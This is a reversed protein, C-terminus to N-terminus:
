EIGWTGPTTFNAKNYLSVAEDRTCRRKLFLTSHDYMPLEGYFMLVSWSPDSADIPHIWQVCVRYKPSLSRCLLYGVAGKRPESLIM